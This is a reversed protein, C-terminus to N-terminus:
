SVAAPSKATDYRSPLAGVSEGLARLDELTRQLQEPVNETRVDKSEPTDAV